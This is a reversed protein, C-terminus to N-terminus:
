SDGKPLSLTQVYKLVDNGFKQVFQEYLMQQLREDRKKNVYSAIIGVVPIIVCLLLEMNEEKSIQKM